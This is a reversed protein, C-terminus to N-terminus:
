YEVLASGYGVVAGYDGIADGSTAYALVRARGTRGDQAAQLLAMVPGPGCMSYGRGLALQGVQAADLRAIADLIERDQREALSQPQYHTLDSSAVIVVDESRVRPALLEGLAMSLEPTQAKMCIPVISFGDAYSYQLFPLQVELSHEHLHAVADEQVVDKLVGKRERIIERAMDSDVSVTGLPTNWAGETMVAIDAGLGQHNPGLLVVTKPRGRRVLEGVSWAAIAGSFPYGAHPSVVGVVEALGQEAVGETPVTGPGLRHRYCGEIQARLRAETGEYFRGAVVAQRVM